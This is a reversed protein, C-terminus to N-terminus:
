EALKWRSDGITALNQIQVTFDGNAPDAFLETSSVAAASMDSSFAYKSNSFKFDSTLYVNELIITGNTRIGQTGNGSNSYACITNKVNVNVSMNDARVLYNSGFVNYFTCDSINIEGTSAVRADVLSQVMKSFTCNSINVSGINDNANSNLAIFARGKSGQNNIVCDTVTVSGVTHLASSQIRFVSQGLGDINVGDLEYRDITCAASQNVIYGDSGDVFGLDVNEFRLYSRSGSIDISKDLLLKPKEGALGFFTFSVGDPLDLNTAGGTSDFCSVEVTCGAPIGITVSAAGTGTAALAQEAYSDVMAQTLQTTGAPLEVKFDGDPMPAATTAAVTGRKATGNYIIFTYATSADLGEVTYEGAAKAAADLTVTRVVEGESTGLRVEIATVEADPTWSLRVSNESRDASTISNFIQEASTKFTNGGDYYKWHSEKTNSKSKIRLYYATEGALGTLTVPSSTISKDEGFVIANEGGQEVDDTLSDTSVEVIYYDVGPVAGFSVNATTAEIQSVSIDGNVKFLRDYSEDVSWDNGDTCSAAALGLLLTFAAGLINNVKM